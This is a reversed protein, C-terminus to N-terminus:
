LGIRLERWRLYATLGGVAEDVTEKWYLTFAGDPDGPGLELFSWRDTVTGELWTTLGLPGLEPSWRHVAIRPEGTEADRDTWALLQAGKSAALTAIRPVADMPRLTVAVPAVLPEGRPSFSAAYLRAGGADPEERWWSVTIRGSSDAVARLPEFARLVVSGLDIPPLVPRGGADFIGLRGAAGKTQPEAWVVALGGGPLGTTAIRSGAWSPVAAGPRSLGVADAVPEGRGDIRIARVTAGGPRGAPRETWVIWAEGGAAPVVVPEMQETGPTPAVPLPIAGPTGTSSYLQVWAWVGPRDACGTTGMMGSELPALRLRSAGCRVPTAFVPQPSRVSTGGAPADGVFCRTNAGAAPAESRCWSVLPSRDPRQVVDGVVLTEPGIAVSGGGDLPHVGLGLVELFALVFSLPFTVDAQSREDFYLSAIAAHRPAGSVSPSRASTAGVGVGEVLAAATKMATAARM